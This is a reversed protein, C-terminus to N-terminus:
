LVLQVIAIIAIVGWVVNLVVPQYDKKQLAEIIIGTAGSLNILQYALSSASLLGFSNLGYAVLIALVGYWGVIIRTSQSMCVSRYLWRIIM